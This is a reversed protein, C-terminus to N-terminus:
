AKTFLYIAWGLCDRGWRLYADRGRRARDLLAPLDPDDPHARAFREAALWRRGEYRDWDSQSSVVTYLLTLGEEAGAAANEAHTGYAERVEGSAAQYEPTPEQMWYPEGVLVQGGPKVLEALRRLTGRHGKFVWSAGLCIALDFSGAPASFAAGDMELFELPSGEPLREQAAKRAAAVFDASIDVGVGSIQYRSAIRLLPEAKGCAIDLVRAGPPLDLLDILEDFAASNMPNLYTLAGSTISHYRRPNM